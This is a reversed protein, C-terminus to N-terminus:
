RWGDMQNNYDGPFIHSIIMNTVLSCYFSAWIANHVKKYIFPPVGRPPGKGEDEDM